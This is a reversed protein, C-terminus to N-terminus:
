TGGVSISGNSARYKAQVAEVKEHGVIFSRETKDTMAAEFHAMKTKVEDDTIEPVPSIPDLKDAIFQFAEGITTFGASQGIQYSERPNNVVIFGAEGVIVTMSSGAAARPM